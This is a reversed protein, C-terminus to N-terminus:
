QRSAGTQDTPNSLGSALPFQSHKASGVFM